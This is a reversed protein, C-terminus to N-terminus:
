YSRSEMEFNYKKHFDNYKEKNLKFTLGDYLQGRIMRYGKVRNCEEFGLKNMLGIVRVNGSWTQTYIDKVGNSLLYEIFLDWSATAYGKRRSSMDPIDIGIACHGEGRTFRYNDDIHYTNMWGIHKRSEDNICIQFSWRMRNEDKKKEKALWALREIRYGITDFMEGENYEWPADWLQWETEVTEWYIRDDIDSEIFDRLVVKCNKIEM